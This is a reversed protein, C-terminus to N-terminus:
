IIQVIYALTYLVASTEIRNRQVFVPTKRNNCVSFGGAITQLGHLGGQWSIPCPLVRSAPTAQSREGRIVSPFREIEM